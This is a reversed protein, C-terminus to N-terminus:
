PEVREIRVTARYPAFSEALLVVRCHGNLIAASGVGRLTPREIGVASANANSAGDVQVVVAHQAAADYTVHYIVVGSEPAGFYAERDRAEILYYCRADDSEPDDLRFVADGIHQHELATLAYEQGPTAETYRLWGAAEKTYSSMHTPASGRRSGEGMLDWAGVEGYDLGGRSSAYRDTLRYINGPAPYRSHLTHGLEHAWSGLPDDESLMVLTNLEVRTHSAPLDLRIPRGDPECITVPAVRGALRRMTGAPCVVVIREIYVTAAPLEPLAREIAALAFEERRGEYASLTPGVSFWDQNGEPGDADLCSLDFAVRGYANQAYYWDAMQSLIRPRLPDGGPADDTQALIVLSASLAGLTSRRTAAELAEALAAEHGQGTRDEVAFLYPGCRWAVVGVACGPDGPHAIIAERGHFLGRPLGEDELQDLWAAAEAETTAAVAIWQPAPDADTPAIGWAQGPLDPRAAVIAPWGLTAATETLIPELLVADAPACPPATFLPARALVLGLLAMCLTLVLICASMRSGGRQVM